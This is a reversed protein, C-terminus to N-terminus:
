INLSDPILPPKEFSGFNAIIGDSAKSCSFLFNWYSLTVGTFISGGEFRQNWTWCEGKQVLM